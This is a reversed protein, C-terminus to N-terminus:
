IGQPGPLTLHSFQVYLCLQVHGITGHAMGLGVWALNFKSSEGEVKLFPIINPEHSTSIFKPLESITRPVM